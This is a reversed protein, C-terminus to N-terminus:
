NRDDLMDELCVETQMPAIVRKAADILSQESISNIRQLRRQLERTADMYGKSVWPHYIEEMGSRANYWGDVNM